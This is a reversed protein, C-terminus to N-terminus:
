ATICACIIASMALIGGALVYALPRPAGVECVADGLRGPTLVDIVVYTVTLLAVGLLGFVVTYVLAAGFGSEGSGWIATFIVLGQGIMWAAGILGAGGSGYRSETTTIGGRGANGLLHRGLHGPTLLDLALYGLALLGLGVATYTVAYGVSELLHNLDM